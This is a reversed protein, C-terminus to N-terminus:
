ECFDEEMFSMAYSLCDRIISQCKGWMNFQHAEIDNGFTLHHREMHDSCCDLFINYRDMKNKPWNANRRDRGVYFLVELLIKQDSSLSLLNKEFSSPSLIAEINDFIHYEGPEADLEEEKCQLIINDILSQNQEFVTRFEVQFSENSKAVVPINDLEQDIMELVESFAELQKCVGHIDLWTRTKNPALSLKVPYRMTMSKSDFAHLQDVYSELAEIKCPFRQYKKRINSLLPKMERWLQKLDHGKGLFVKRKSADKELKFYLAKFYLEVSHRYCFCIPYVLGDILSYSRPEALISEYLHKAGMRYSESMWIFAHAIDEEDGFHSYMTPRLKSLEDVSYKRFVIDDKNIM